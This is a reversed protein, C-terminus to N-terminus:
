RSRRAVLEQVGNVGSILGVYVLPVVFVITPIVAGGLGARVCVAVRDSLGAGRSFTEAQDRARGRGGRVRFLFNFLDQVCVVGKGGSFVLGVYFIGNSDLGSGNSGGSRGRGDTTAALYM